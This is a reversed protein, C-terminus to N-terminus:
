EGVVLLVKAELRPSYLEFAADAVRFEERGGLTCTEGLELPLLALYAVECERDLAELGGGANVIGGHLGVVLSM